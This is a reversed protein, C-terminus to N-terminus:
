ITFCPHWHHAAIADPLPAVWDQCDKNTVVRLLGEHGVSIIALAWLAFYWRPKKAFM